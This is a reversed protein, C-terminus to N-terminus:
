ANELDAMVAINGYGSNPFTQVQSAPWTVEFEVTYSDAVQLDTAGWNYQVTGVNITLTAATFNGTASLPNNNSDVMNIYAQAVNFSGVRAGAPIGNGQLSSGNVISTFSSVSTLQSSGSSVNATPTVVTLKSVGTGTILSGLAGKALVKISVATSLDVFQGASMICAVLPPYTDFRKWTPVSTSM